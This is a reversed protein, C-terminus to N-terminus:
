DMSTIESESDSDVGSESGSDVGSQDNNPEVMAGDM